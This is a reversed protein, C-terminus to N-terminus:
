GSQFMDDGADGGSGPSGPAPDPPDSFIDAPPGEIPSFGEPLASPIPTVPEPMTEVTTMPAPEDEPPPEVPGIEVVPEEEVFMEEETDDIPGPTTLATTSEPEPTPEPESVPPQVDAPPEAPSDFLSETPEEAPKEPEPDFLGEMPDEAPTEPPSEFLGEPAPESPPTVSAVPPEPPEADDTPGFLSEDPDTPATEVPMSPSPQIPQEGDGDDFLNTSSPDAPESDGDDFLSPAAGSDEDEEQDDFLGPAPSAGDEQDDFLGPPSTDGRDISVPSREFLKLHKLPSELIKRPPEITIFGGSSGVMALSIMLSNDDFEYSGDRVAVFRIETTTRPSIKVGELCSVPHFEEGEPKVGAVAVARFFEMARFSHDSDDANEISLVYSRNMYLGIYTPRFDGQRIRLSIKKAQDWDVGQLYKDYETSCKNKNLSAFFGTAGSGDGPIYACSSLLFMGGILAIPKLAMM